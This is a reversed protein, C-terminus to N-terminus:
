RRSKMIANLRRMSIRRIMMRLKNTMGLFQRRPITATGKNHYVSYDLTSGWKVGKSNYRIVRISGHLRGTKMLLAHDQPTKPRAWRRGNWSQSPFVENKTYAVAAEGVELSLAALEARVERAKLDFRLKSM